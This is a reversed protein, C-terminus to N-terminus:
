MEEVKTANVKAPDGDMVDGEYSVRVNDGVTFNHDRGINVEIKDGTSLIKEGENPTVVITQGNVSSVTGTFMMEDVTGNGNGNAGPSVTATMDPSVAPSMTPSMMPSMTPSQTPTATATNQDEDKNACAALSLIMIVAIVLIVVRKM